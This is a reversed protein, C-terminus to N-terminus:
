TTISVINYLIELNTLVLNDKQSRDWRLRARRSVFFSSMKLTSPMFPRNRIKPPNTTKALFVFLDWSLFPGSNWSHVTTPWMGFIPAFFFFFFGFKNGIKKPNGENKAHPSCSYMWSVSTWNTKATQSCKWYFGLMLRFNSLSRNHGWSGM